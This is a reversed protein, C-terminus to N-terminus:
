RVNKVKIGTEDFVERKVCDELREQPDVFGALVSFMKKNPFNVGRALLLKDEKVVAMIVAPSIRPYYTLNCTECFRGQEDTKPITRNGCKGCYASNVNCDNIQRAYGAIEWFDSDVKPLLKRLNLWEFRDPPDCGHWGACYCPTPGCSGLFTIDRLSFSDVDDQHLLPFRIRDEQNKEVLLHGAEDFMLVFAKDSFSEPARVTRIFTM